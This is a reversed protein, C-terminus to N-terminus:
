CKIVSTIKFRQLRQWGLKCERLAYIIELQNLNLSESKNM